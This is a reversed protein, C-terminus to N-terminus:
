PVLSLLIALEFLATTAERRSRDVWGRLEIDKDGLRCNATM